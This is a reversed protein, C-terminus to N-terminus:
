TRNRGRRDPNGARDKGDGNCRERQRGTLHPRSQKSIEGFIAAILDRQSCEESREGIREHHQPRDPGLFFSRENGMQREGEADDQGKHTDAREYVENAM